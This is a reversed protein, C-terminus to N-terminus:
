VERNKYNQDNKYGYKVYIIDDRHVFLYLRAFERNKPILYQCDNGKNELKIIVRKYELHITNILEEHIELPQGYRTLINASLIQLPINHTVKIEFKLDVIRSRNLDRKVHEPLYIKFNKGGCLLPPRELKDKILIQITKEITTTGLFVLHKKHEATNSLLM